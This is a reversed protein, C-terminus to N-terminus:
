KKIEKNLQKIEKLALKLQKANVSMHQHTIFLVYADQEHSYKIEGFALYTTKM